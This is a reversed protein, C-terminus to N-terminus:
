NPKLITQDYYNKFIEPYIYAELSMSWEEAGPGTLPPFGGYTSAYSPCNPDPHDRYKPACTSPTGPPTEPDYYEITDTQQDYHKAYPFWGCGSEDCVWTGIAAIEGLSLNNGESYDWVHAFEHIISGTVYREPAGIINDGIVIDGGFAYALIGPPAFIGAKPLSLPLRVITLKRGLASKIKGNGGLGPALRTIGNRVRKLEDLNHWNGEGWYTSCSFYSPDISPLYGWGWDKKIKVGYTNDLEQILKDAEPADSQPIMGSPDKYKVPNSYGYLWTNFSMTRYIDGGWTDRTMFRSITPAYYRARLYVLGTNDTWEGTFGYATSASGASDLVEGYPQFSQSLTVNGSADALQRVSGLADGLFYEASTGIYQAIRGNGYLYSHTGDSLVQTLGGALDLAYANGTGNVTQQLRDGLGNYRYNATLTPGSVGKLRNAHDYTYTNVGDNLLNGNDDWTYAIGDVSTLRNASDYVYTNSTGGTSQETLRNGVADYTYSLYMGDSYDVRKLRYLSDYTYTITRSTSSFVAQKRLAFLPNAPAALFHKGSSMTTEIHTIEENMSLTTDSM